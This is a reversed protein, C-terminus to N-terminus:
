AKKKMAQYSAHAAKSLTLGDVEAGKYDGHEIDKAMNKITKLHNFYKRLQQYGEVGEQLVQGLRSTLRQGKTISSEFAMLLATELASLNGEEIGKVLSEVINAWSVYFNIGM